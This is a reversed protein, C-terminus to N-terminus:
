YIKYKARRIKREKDWRRDSVTGAIMTDPQGYGHALAGRVGRGESRNGAIQNMM